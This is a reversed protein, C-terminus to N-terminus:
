DFHSNSAANGWKQHVLILQGDNCDVDVWETERLSQAPNIGHAGPLNHEIRLDNYSKCLLKRM